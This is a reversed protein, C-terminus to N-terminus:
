RGLGKGIKINSDYREQWGSISVLASEGSSKESENRIEWALDVADEVKEASSKFDKPLGNLAFGEFASEWCVILEEALNLGALKSAGLILHLEHFIANAEEKGEGEGLYKLARVQTKMKEMLNEDFLNSFENNIGSFTLEGESSCSETNTAESIVASKKEAEPVSEAEPEEKPKDNSLANIEEESMIGLERLSDLAASNSVEADAAPKASVAVEAVPKPTVEEKIVEEKIVKKIEEIEEEKVVVEQVVELVPPNAVYAKLYEAIEIMDIIKLEVLCQSISKGSSSQLSLVEDVQETTWNFTDVLISNMPKSDNINEELLQVLQTSNLKAQTRLVSLFSPYSELQICTASLLEDEKIYGKDILFKGFSM